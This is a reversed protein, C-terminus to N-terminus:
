EQIQQKAAKAEAMPLALEGEQEKARQELEIRRNELETEFTERAAEQVHPVKRTMQNESEQMNQAADDFKGHQNRIVQCHSDVEARRRCLHKRLKLTKAGSETMAQIM